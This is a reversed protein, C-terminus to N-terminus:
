KKKVSVDGSPSRLFSHTPLSLHQTPWVVPHLYWTCSSSTKAWILLWLWVSPCSCKMQWIHEPLDTLLPKCPANETLFVNVISVLAAMCQLCVTLCFHLLLLHLDYCWCVLWHQVNMSDQLDKRWISLKSYLIDLIKKRTLMGGSEGLPTTAKEDKAGRVRKWTQILIHNTDLGYLQM